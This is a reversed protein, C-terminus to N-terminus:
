YPYTPYTICPMGMAYGSFTGACGPASGTVRVKYPASDVATFVIYPSTSGNGMVYYSGRSSPEVQISWSAVGPVQASSTLQIERRTGACFSDQAGFSVPMNLNAFEV